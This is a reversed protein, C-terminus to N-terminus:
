DLLIGWVYVIWSGTTTDSTFTMDITDATVFYYGTVSNPGWDDGVLTLTANTATNNTSAGDQLEDGGGIGIDAEEAAGEPTTTYIASGLAVFGAPVHFLQIVDAATIKAAATLTANSAIVDAADVVRKYVVFKNYFNSAPPAGSVADGTYDYTGAFAFSSFISLFFVTLLLWIFRKM